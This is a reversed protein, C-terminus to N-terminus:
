SQELWCRAARLSLGLAATSPPTGHIHGDGNLPCCRKTERPLRSTASWGPGPHLHNHNAQNHLHGHSPSPSSKASKLDFYVNELPYCSQMVRRTPVVVSGGGLRLVEGQDSGLTPRYALVVARM